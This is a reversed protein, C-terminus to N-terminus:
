EYKLFDLLVSQNVARCKAFDVHFYWNCGSLSLFIHLYGMSWIHIKPSPSPKPHWPSGSLCKCSSPVEIPLMLLCVSTLTLLPSYLSSYNTASSLPQLHGFSHYEFFSSFVTLSLCSANLCGVCDSKGDGSGLLMSRALNKKSKGKWEQQESESSSLPM